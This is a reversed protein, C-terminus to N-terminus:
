LDPLFNAIGREEPIHVTTMCFLKLRRWHNLDTKRQISQCQQHTDPIAVLGYFDM